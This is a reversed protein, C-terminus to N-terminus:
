AKRPARGIRYHAAPRNGTGIPLSDVAAQTVFQKAMAVADPLTRGQALGATVAASLCDGAGHLAADVRDGEYWRAPLDRGLFCDPSREDALHGGTILVNRAGLELLHEAAQAMDDRTEITLGTLVGAEPISPTAILCRPLLREAIVALAANDVLVEGRRTTIVPDFVYAVAPDAALFRAVVRIIPESFLMGTKVAAVPLDACVRRLQRALFRPPPVHVDTVGHSNCDTLVTVASAGYVGVAQLTKLDAQLGAGGSPDSGAVTLAVPHTNM